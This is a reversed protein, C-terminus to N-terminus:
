WTRVAVGPLCFRRQVPSIQCPPHSGDLWRRHGTKVGTGSGKASTQNERRNERSRRGHTQMFRRGPRTSRWIRAGVGASRVGPKARGCVPGRPSATSVVTVPRARHPRNSGVVPTPLPCSPRRGSGPPRRRGSDRRATSRAVAHLRGHPRRDGIAPAAARAAAAIGSGMDTGGGGELEVQAGRSVRRVAHVNTDVALVRVQTQRLGAKGLIAEVEGLARALLEAHMSGSTDCVVAVDPIPRRRSPM